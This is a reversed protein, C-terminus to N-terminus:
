PLCPGYPPAPRFECPRVPCSPGVALRSRGGRKTVNGVLVVFGCRRNRAPMLDTDDADVMACIVRSPTESTWAPRTECSPRSRRRNLVQGNAWAPMRDQAQPKLPTISKPHPRRRPDGQRQGSNDGKRDGPRDGTAPDRSEPHRQGPVHAVFSNTRAFDDAPQASGDAQYAGCRQHVVWNQRVPAPGPFPDPPPGTGRLQPFRLTAPTSRNTPPRPWTGPLGESAPAKLLARRPPQEGDTSHNM